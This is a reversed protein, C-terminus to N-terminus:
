NPQKSLLEPSESTCLTNLACSLALLLDFLQLKIKILTLALKPLMAMPSHLFTHPWHNIDCITNHTCETVSIDKDM